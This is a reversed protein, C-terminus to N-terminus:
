LQTIGSLDSLVEETIAGVEHGQQLSYSLARLTDPM